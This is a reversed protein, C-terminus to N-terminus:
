IADLNYSTMIFILDIWETNDFQPLLGLSAGAFSQEPYEPLVCVKPHKFIPQTSASAFSVNLHWFYSKDTLLHHSWYM